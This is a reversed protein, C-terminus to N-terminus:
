NKEYLGLLKKYIGPEISDITNLTAELSKKYEGNLFLSESRNLGEEIHSKSSKYRNGYVIAKEAMSATKILENTTNSFKFVLDRATDVRTNLVDINIPKRSLESTIEKIADAAEQLETFYHSPVIPFKYTRVKYKATKLIDSIETLQERARKEDEQMNGVTEIYNGLKEYLKVLKISLIELEKMLRSYPFSSTEKTEYLTDFDSNITKYEERLEGLKSLQEKTLKYNYKIDSDVGYLMNLQENIKESKSKFAIVQEDFTKRSLKEREFDNFMSDFYELIVKLEFVVDELNLVRIKSMIDEIKKKTENINYEVNLYDLQYGNKILKNYNLMIEEIRKPILNTAMLIASPLEDIVTEMHSIMSSLVKTILNTEEYEQKELLTEFDKFRKEINEIQLKVVEKVEGFDEQLSEYNQLINRYRSKLDTIITRNKDECMTIEQIESILKIKNETAEYIKLEIRIRKERYLSFNRQDILFDAEIIMDNIESLINKKMNDIRNQWNNYKAKIKENKTLIEAKTLESMIPADIIQNRKRELDCIEKKLKQKRVSQMLSLIIIIFLVAIIYYTVIELVINNMYDEKNEKYYLELM